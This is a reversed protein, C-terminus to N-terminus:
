FSAALLHLLPDVALKGTWYFFLTSLTVFFGRRQSCLIKEAALMCIYFFVIFLLGQFTRSDGKSLWAALTYFSWIMFHLVFVIYYSM